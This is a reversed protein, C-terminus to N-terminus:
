GPVSPVTDRVDPEDHHLTVQLTGAIEADARPWGRLLNLTEADLHITSAALAEALAPVSAAAIEFAISISKNSFPRYDLIWGGAKQIAAEAQAAVIHRAATSLGNIRLAAPMPM